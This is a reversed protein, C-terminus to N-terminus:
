NKNNNKMTAAVGSARGVLLVVVLEGAVWWASVVVVASSSSYGRRCLVSWQVELQGDCCCDSKKAAHASISHNASRRM